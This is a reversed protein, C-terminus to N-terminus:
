PAEVIVRLVTFAGTAVDLLLFDTTSVIAFPVEIVTMGNFFTPPDESPHYKKMGIGKTGIEPDFDNTLFSWMGSCHSATWTGGSPPIGVRMVEYIKEFDLKLNIGWPVSEETLTLTGNTVTKPIKTLEDIFVEVPGNPFPVARNVKYTKGNTLGTIKTGTLGRVEGMGTALTGNEKAYRVVNGEVVRYYAGSTLGTIERKGTKIGPDSGKALVPAVQARLDDISPELTLGCTTMVMLALLVLSLIGIRRIATQKTHIVM